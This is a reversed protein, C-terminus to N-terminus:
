NSENDEGYSPLDFWKKLEDPTIGNSEEQKKEVIEQQHLEITEEQPESDYDKIPMYKINQNLQDELLSISIELLDMVRPDAYASDLYRIIEGLHSSSEALIRKSRNNLSM